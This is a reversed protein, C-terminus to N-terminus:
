KPRALRFGWYINSYSPSTHFRSASEARSAFFAWSGGRLVRTANSRNNSADEQEEGEYDKDYLSACWEWVNGHMDYLNWRNRANTGLKKIPVTQGVDNDYNMRLPDPNDGWWFATETGARCAYEWEAETPLRHNIGTKISIWKAFDVADWYSVRIVPRDDRGWGEDGPKVKGVNECYQDYQAFTVPADMLKFATVTVRHQREEGDSGSGMIFAGSPISVFSKDSILIPQQNERKVKASQKSTKRKPISEAIKKGVSTKAAGSKLQLRTGQSKQEKQQPKDKLAETETQKKIKNLASNKKISKAACNRCVSKDKFRYDELYSKKCSLCQFWADSKRLPKGSGACIKTQAKNRNTAPAKQVQEGCALCFRANNPIEATCKTCKKAKVVSQGCDSCFRANRPLESQCNICAPM